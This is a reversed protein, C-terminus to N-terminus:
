SVSKQYSIHLNAKSTEFSSFQVRWNSQSKEMESTKESNKEVM